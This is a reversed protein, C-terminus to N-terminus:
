LSSSYKLCQIHGVTWRERQSWSQKFSVPQEDYVKADTAWGLKRGAAINM